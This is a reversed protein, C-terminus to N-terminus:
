VSQSGELRLSSRRVRIRFEDEPQPGARLADNYCDLADARRRLQEFIVGKYFLILAANETGAALAADYYRLADYLLGENRLNNAREALEEGTGSPARWGANRAYMEAAYAPALRGGADKALQVKCLWVQTLMSDEVANCWEEARYLCNGAEEYEKRQAHAQGRVVLSAADPARLADAADVAAIAETPRGAYLLAEAKLVWLMSLFLDRRDADEPAVGDWLAVGDLAADFCAACEGYRSLAKLVAAKGVWALPHLPDGAIVADYGRLAEDLRGAAALENASNLLGETESLM